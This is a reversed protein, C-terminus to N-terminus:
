APATLKPASCAGGQRLPYVSPQLLVHVEHVTPLRESALGYRSVGLKVNTGYRAAPRAFTTRRLGNVSTKLILFFALHLSPFCTVAASKRKVHCVIMLGFHSM